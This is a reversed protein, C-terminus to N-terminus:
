FTLFTLRWKRDDCSTILFNLKEKKKLYFKCWMITDAECNRFIYTEGFSYVAVEPKLSFSRLKTTLSKWLYREHVYYQFHNKFKNYPSCIDLSVDFIETFNVEPRMNEQGWFSSKESHSRLFRYSISLLSKYCISKLVYAFDKPNLTDTM